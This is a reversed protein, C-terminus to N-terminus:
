YLIQKTGTFSKGNLFLKFRIGKADNILRNSFELPPAVKFDVFVGTQGFYVGKVIDGVERKIHETVSKGLNPYTNHLYNVIPMTTKMHKLNIEIQRAVGPDKVCTYKDYSIRLEARNFVEGLITFAVNHRYNEYSRIVVPLKLTYEKPADELSTMLPIGGLSVMGSITQMGGYIDPCFSSDLADEIEARDLYPILAVQLTRMASCTIINQERPTFTIEVRKFM